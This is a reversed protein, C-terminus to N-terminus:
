ASWSLLSSTLPLSDLQTLRIRMIFSSRSFFLFTFILFSRVQAETQAQAAAFDRAVSEASVLEDVVEDLQARLDDTVVSLEGARESEGAPPLPVALGYRLSHPLSTHAPPAPPPVLVSIPLLTLMPPCATQIVLPADVNINARRLARLRLRLRLRLRM